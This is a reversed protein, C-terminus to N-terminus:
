TACMSMWKLVSVGLSDQDGMDELALSSLVPLQIQGPLHVPSMVMGYLSSRQLSYDPFITKLCPKPYNVRKEIFILCKKLRRRLMASVNSDHTTSYRWLCWVTPKWDIAILPICWNQNLQSGKIVPLAGFGRFELKIKGHIYINKHQQSYDWWSM